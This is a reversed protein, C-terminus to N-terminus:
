VELAPPGCYLSGWVPCAKWAHTSLSQLQLLGKKEQSKTNSVLCSWGSGLVGEQSCCPFGGFLNDYDPAESGQTKMRPVFAVQAPIIPVIFHQGSMHVCGGTLHEPEKQPSEQTHNIHTCMHVQTHMHIQMCTFTYTHTTSYIVICTHTHTHKHAHTIHRHTQYVQTSTYM